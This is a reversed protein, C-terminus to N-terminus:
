VPQDNKVHVFLLGELIDLAASEVPTGREFHQIASNFGQDARNLIDFMASPKLTTPTNETVEM